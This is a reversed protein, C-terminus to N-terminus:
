ARAFDAILSPAATDFGVVDMMGAEAPDAISFQTATMGVVVLKAPIGSKQRYQQLAQAPHIDGAWTENDTYVVFVDAQIGHAAAYLMPLACDTGGFPIASIRAIVDDLRTHPSISVPTIGNCYGHAEWQGRYSGGPQWAGGNTFAVIHHNAETAATVLAMAATGLRPTIGPMGAIVGAGMSGSVDLALLWRKGTPEINGFALYFADDLADVIRQVPKWAAQGREGHGQAYTKLAVLLALPHLRSKRIREMNSLEEVVKGVAESLPTLLGVRTMTALNRVLAALPMHELLAEWVEPETLFQTPVCERVLGNDRILKVVEAKSTARKARELAWIPILDPDDHPAEGVSEWGKVIWHYITQLQGEATPHSLRLLDRHSWGNRQQYKSVQYALAQPEKAGYWGAIARRLGRGWGRLQQCAEAFQFLHTGIRCVKPLAEYAARKTADDGVHAALALAFIAQDNKPARGADSVEVIRRVTRPGDARCCRQVCAANEITLKRETAYYTGGENGLVLFRDLRAWDDIAWAFGGGSNPVQNAGPIPLGQPTQKTSVHQAYNVAM